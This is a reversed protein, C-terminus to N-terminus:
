PSGELRRVEGLDIVGERAAQLYRKQAPTLRAPRRRWADLDWALREPPPDLRDAWRRLFAALPRGIM